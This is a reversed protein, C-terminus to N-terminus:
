GSLEKKNHYRALAKAAERERNNRYWERSYHRGCEVCTRNGNVLKTNSGSLEHGQACVLRYKNTVFPSEGRLVNEGVSVPELHTPNLCATNRCLHDLVLDTPIPGIFHEYSVRHLMQRVGNISMRGYGNDLTGTYVICGSDLIATKALWRLPDLM